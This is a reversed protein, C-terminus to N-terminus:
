GGAREVDRASAIAAPETRGRRSRLAQILEPLRLRRRLRWLLALYGTGAVVLYVALALFSEGLGVRTVVGIVGFCAVALISALWFGSGVPSLGLFYRVQVIAAVNNVIMAVGWAIGAGTMGLDPILLVNLVINIALAAASNLLSWSSKGAMVLVVSCPGTAMNVLAAASLVMLATQGAPYGDGFARLLVPAFVACTLYFPWSLLILWQTAVRYLTQARREAGVAVMASIQPAMVQQVAALAVFGAILFRSSAAYIGADRPSRLAGILLIDLRFLAVNFFTALGRPATFRWFEGALSALGTSPASDGGPAGVARRVLGFLWGASIALAIAAPLSWALALAGGGLAAAVVVFAFAPRLGQRAFSEALVSPVMTGFGRTAAMTVTAATSLPLFPALIRLYQALIREHGSDGRLLLHSLAPALVFLAAGLAAAVAVPPGLGVLLMRQLDNTRDIARYRAVMRTAGTDAGLQAVQAAMMFLAIAEFFVGADDPDLGRTVVLVLLVGFIGNAIAGIM